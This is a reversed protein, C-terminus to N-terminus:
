NQRKQEMEQEGAKTKNANEFLFRGMDGGGQNTNGTNNNNGSTNGSTSCGRLLSRNEERDRSRRSRNDRDDERRRSRDENGEYQDRPTDDNNRRYPRQQQNQNPQQDPLRRKWNRARQVISISTKSRRTGTTEM